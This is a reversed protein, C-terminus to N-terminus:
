KLINKLNQENSFKFMGTIHPTQPQISTAEMEPKGSKTTRRISASASRYTGNTIHYLADSFMRENPDGLQLAFSEYSDTKEGKLGNFYDGFEDKNVMQFSTIYYSGYGHVVKSEFFGVPKGYTGISGDNSRVTILQVDMYPKLSNIVLESASATQKTGLFYVRKLNLTNKKDFYVPGFAKGPQLLGADELVYNVKYKYMLAKAHTTPVLQNALYEASWTSGGGNYRLDIVLEDVGEFAKFANEMATHYSNPQGQNNYLNVFSTYAMYGVKKGNHDIVKNVMIPDIQYADGTVTITSEKGDVPSIVVLKLTEGSFFKMANKFENASESNYDVKTDGNISVVRMGRILGAKAAPSNKQVYRIYLNANTSGASELLFIPTAGTEKYVGQQIEESVTGARDVFSFRDLTASKRLEDLVEEATKFKGTFSKLDPENGILKPQPLKDTWLSLALSYYYASDRFLIEKEADKDTETNVPDKKCSAAVVLALLAGVLIKKKFM